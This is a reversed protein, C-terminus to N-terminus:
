ASAIAQSPTFSTSQTIENLKSINLNNIGEILKNNKAIIDDVNNSGIEISDDITKLIKAYKEQLKIVKNIKTLKSNYLELERKLQILTNLVHESSDDAEEDNLMTENILTTLSPENPQLSKTFIDVTYLQLLRFRALLNPNKLITNITKM